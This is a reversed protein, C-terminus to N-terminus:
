DEHHFVVPVHESEDVSLRFVDPRAYHGMADFDFRGRAIAARDIEAVLLGEGDFKPGALVNGLPDIICSGGPSVVADAGAEVTGYVEPDDSRCAFQNASLVFCRGEMAIHRMTPLWTERGDATPALYIEIGKAYHAARLLPMYNEWCIV